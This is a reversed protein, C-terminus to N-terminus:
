LEGGVDNPVALRRASLPRTLTIIGGSDLGRAVQALKGGSSHELSLLREFTYQICKWAKSGPKTKRQARIISSLSIMYFDETEHMMGDNDRALKVLDKGWSDHQAQLFVHYRRRYDDLETANLM